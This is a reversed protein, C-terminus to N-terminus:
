IGDEFMADIQVGRENVFKAAREEGAALMEDLTMMPVVRGVDVGNRDTEQLDFIAKILDSM